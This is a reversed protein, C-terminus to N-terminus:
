FDDLVDLFFDALLYNFFGGAFNHTFVAVVLVDCSMLMLFEEAAAQPGCCDRRTQERQPTQALQGLRDPASVHSTRRPLGQRDGQLGEKHFHAALEEVVKRSFKSAVHGRGKLNGSVGPPYTGRATRAPVYKTQDDDNDM